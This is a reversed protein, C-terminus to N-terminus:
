LTQTLVPRVAGDCAEHCTETAGVPSANNQSAIGPNRGGNVRRVRDQAITTRGEQIIAAERIGTMLTKVCASFSM